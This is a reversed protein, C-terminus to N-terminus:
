IGLDKFLEEPTEFRELDTEEFAAVTEANPIREPLELAFPIEHRLRVQTLFLKIAQSTSPGLTRFVEEAEQKLQRDVRVALTATNSM